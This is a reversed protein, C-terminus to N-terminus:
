ALPGCVKVITKKPLYYAGIMQTIQGAEKKAIASGRIYDLISTKGHDVHALICIVPSRLM